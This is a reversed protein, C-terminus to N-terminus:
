SISLSSALSFIEKNQANFYFDVRGLNIGAFGVQFVRCMKNEANKVLKPKDMFTHTHGGIVLDTYSTKEAIKIDSIKHSEYEFGLHSLCIILDCGIQTKLLAEEQRAIELPDHYSTKGYLDSPVLGNLEIGLGYVGVKVGDLEFVKNNIAKGEMPTSSFDYNANILPFGAMDALEALREIGADFDHNGITAADYGMETMLRFEVEGQYFNFYPTGQLIDGADLLLVNPNENRIEAVVSARRAFGAKGAYRGADSPFPEIRSHLDNTHLISIKRVNEKALLRMPLSSLAAVGAGSILATQLFDRRNMFLSGGKWNLLSYNTRQM